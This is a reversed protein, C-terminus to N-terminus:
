EMRAHIVAVPQAVVAVVVGQADMRLVLRKM